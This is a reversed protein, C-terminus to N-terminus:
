PGDTSLAYNVHQPLVLQGMSNPVAEIHIQPQAARV